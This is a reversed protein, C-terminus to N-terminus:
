AAQWRNILAVLSQPFPCIYSVILGIIENKHRKIVSFRAFTTIFRGQGALRMRGAGDVGYGNSELHM